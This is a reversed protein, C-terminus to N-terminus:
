KEGQRPGKKEKSRPPAAEEEKELVLGFPAQQRLVDGDDTVWASLAMGGYVLQLQQVERVRGNWQL